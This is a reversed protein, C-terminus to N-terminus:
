KQLEKLANVIEVLEDKADAEDVVAVSSASVAIGAKEGLEKKSEVFSCPIGKEKCLVPLHMVIEKPDVDKAIIVLKAEGREVAKTVENVGIRLKGGKKNVQELLNLQKEVLEKPIEVEEVYDVEELM